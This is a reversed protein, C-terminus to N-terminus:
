TTHKPRKLITIKGFSKEFHSGSRSLNVSALLSCLHILHYAVDVLTLRQQSCFNNRTGRVL